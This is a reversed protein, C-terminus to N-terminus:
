LLVMYNKAVIETKKKTNASLESVILCWSADELLSSLARSFHKCLETHRKPLEDVLKVGLFGMLVSLEVLLGSFRPLSRLM